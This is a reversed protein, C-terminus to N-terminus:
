TRKRAVIPVSWPEPWHIGFRLCPEDAIRVSSFGARGLERLLADFDALDRLGGGLDAEFLHAACHLALDEPAPVLLDPAAITRAARLIERPDPHLRGSEPLINHHVDVVTQRQRHRLPPLEHMWTRYYRQDYPELKIPDWGAALLTREVDELRERPVLIDVDSVLRGRAVELEALVYAAGKLLVIPSGTARLVHRIRDVEWRVSREHHRALTRIAQLHDVVEAPLRPDLDREAVLAAIRALVGSHRAAPLLREWGHRDLGLVQGPDRLVELVLSAADNRVVGVVQRRFM